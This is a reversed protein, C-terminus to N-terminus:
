GDEPSPFMPRVGAQGRAINRRAYLAHVAMSGIFGLVGAALAVPTTLGVRLALLSVLVAVIVSDLVSVVMPTAALLHLVPSAGPHMGMTIGVGRVDDHASTVFFRELDLAIELYGARIRNMGIVCTADYYNAAGLRIITTVGVFLVVPLIVLAFLVFGDGFDSAQTVLALAVMAGSLASLFMGARSFSDNWALSRTALLSSHEASLIQLRMAAPTESTTAAEAPAPTPTSAPEAGIGTAASVREFSM